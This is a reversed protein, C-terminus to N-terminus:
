KSFCRHVAGFKGLSPKRKLMKTDLIKYHCFSKMMYCTKGLNRERNNNFLQSM